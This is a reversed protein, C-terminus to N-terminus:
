QRRHVQFDKIRVDIKQRIIQYKKLINVVTEEQLDPIDLRNLLYRSECGFDRVIKGNYINIEVVNFIDSSKGNVLMIFKPDSRQTMGIIRCLWLYYATKYKNIEEKLLEDVYKRSTKLDTYLIVEKQFGFPSSLGNDIYKVGRINLLTHIIKRLEFLGLIEWQSIWSENSNRQNSVV